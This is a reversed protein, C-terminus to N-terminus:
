QPAETNTIAAPPGTPKDQDQVETLDSPLVGKFFQEAAGEVTAMETFLQQYAAHNEFEARLEDNKIFKKGDDSKVGYALLILRKFEDILRKPDTTEIIRNILASFGGAYEVELEILEPKSINFYFTETIEEDNFDTYTIQRKLM